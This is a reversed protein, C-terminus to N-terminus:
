QSQFSWGKLTGIFEELLLSSFCFRDVHEKLIKEIKLVKNNSIWVVGDILAVKLVNGDCKVTLLNLAESFQNDQSGGFETIFKATGIVYKDEVKLLFDLGKGQMGFSCRLRDEAYSKLAIDGGELFAMEMSEFKEYEVFNFKNKLWKQFMSGLRRSAKKPEEIRRQLEEYSTIKFIINCLREITKPNKLLASPYHALFGVYPDEVPFKFGEKRLLILEKILEECRKIEFLEKLRAAKERPLTSRGAEEPNYIELLRDLYDENILNKTKNLWYMWHVNM